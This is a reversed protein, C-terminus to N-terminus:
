DLFLLAPTELAARIAQIFQAADMGDVVRHDFSASLNMFQRAVVHGDRFVPREVIRNVGLIAVEPHNIVPTTVIGGLAGLSSLTFTSGTLEERAAKASRAADALRAIDRACQWLDMAEAHRLVPVMLGNPTQTAVGLHVPAHRTVVGNDDDFRANMQSFERLALVLARVLLPLLTLKGRETAHRENLVRRLAEIQTVDVEEVYSFHPIRRKSEQMRLAIKRRLGIVPVELEGARRAYASVPAAVPARGRSAIYADLDNHTIRGAPGSGHVFRLEVGLDWARQRVAPSALPREGPARMAPPLAAPAVSSTVPIAGVGMVPAAAEVAEERAEVPTRAAVPAPPMGASPAAPPMGSPVTTLNGEGVVELRILEAGVALTAGKAGGLALVIGAVPSPIEVTAKDTMVDAVTQDEKVADGPAVRWAVVEVEAIGEGIDPMRIAYVGM